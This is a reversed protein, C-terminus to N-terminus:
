NRVVPNMSFGGSRGQHQLIARNRNLYQQAQERQKGTLTNINSEIWQFLEKDPTNLLGESSLQEFQEKIAQQERQKGPTEGPSASLRPLDKVPNGMKGGYQELLGPQRGAPQEPKSPQSGKVADIFPAPDIGMQEMKATLQELPIGKQHAEWAQAFVQKSQGPQSQGQQGGAQIRRDNIVRDHAANVGLHPAKQYEDVVEASMRALDKHTQETLAMFNQSDLGMGKAVRQYAMAEVDKQSLRGSFGSGPGGAGLGEHQRIEATRKNHQVYGGGPLSTLAWDADAKGAKVLPGGGEMTVPRATNGTIAVANGQADHDYQPPRNDIRFQEREMANQQTIADREINFQQLRHDRREQAADKRQSVLNDQAAGAAGAAFGLLGM